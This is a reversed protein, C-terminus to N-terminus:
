AHQDLEAKTACYVSWGTYASRAQAALPGVPQLMGANNVLLLPENTAAFGRWVLGDLWAVLAGSRRASLSL